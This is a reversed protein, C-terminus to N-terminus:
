KSFNNSKVATGVNPGRIAARVICCCLDIKGSLHASFTTSFSAYDAIKKNSM